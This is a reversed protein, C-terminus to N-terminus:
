MEVLKQNTFSFSMDKSVTSDRESLQQSEARAGITPKTGFELELSRTVNTWRIPEARLM